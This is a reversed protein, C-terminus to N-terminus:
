AANMMIHRATEAALVEENHRLIDGLSIVGCL